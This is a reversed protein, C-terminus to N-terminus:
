AKSILVYNRHCEKNAIRFGTNLCSILLCIYTYKSVKVWNMRRAVAMSSGHRVLNLKNYEPSFCYFTNPEARCHSPLRVVYSNSRLLSYNLGCRHSFKTQSWQLCNRATWRGSVSSTLLLLSSIYCAFFFQVFKDFAAFAHVNYFEWALIELCTM